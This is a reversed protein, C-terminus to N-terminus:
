FCAKIGAFVQFGEVPYGYYLQYKDNCINDVVSFITIKKNLAYDVHLSLDFINDIKDNLLVGNKDYYSAYRQTQVIGVLKLTLKNFMTYEAKASLDFGPKYWAHEINYTKYHNYAMAAEFHLNDSAKFRLDALLHLAKNDDYQLSFQNQIPDNWINCYFMDNAIDYYRIGIHLDINNVINARLGGEFGLRINQYSIPLISTVFPNEDVIEHYHYLKMGGSLGAYFEAKKDFLFLSGNIDPRIAVKTSDSHLLDFQVGLHLKYFDDKMEFYPSMSFHINNQAIAGGRYNLYNLSLLAGISQPNERQGWWNDSYSLHGNLTVNNEMAKNGKDATFLYSINFEHNLVQLHTGTSKLSSNFGIKNYHQKPCFTEIQDESILQGNLNYGYYHYADYSYLVENHLQHNSLKNSLEVSFDNNMFSSPAYHKINQWTSFHRIGVGINTNRNLESNHRYHFLPSIRSGIGAMLFNETIAKNDNKATYVSPSLSETEMKLDANVDLIEIKMQPITIPQQPKDPSLKIKDVINVQPRYTGEITIHENHQALSAHASFFMAVIICLSYRINTNM